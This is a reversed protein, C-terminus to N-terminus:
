TPVGTLQDDLCASVHQDRIREFSIAVGAELQQVTLEAAVGTLEEIAVAVEVVGLSDLHAIEIQDTAGLFPALRGRIQEADILGDTCNIQSYRAIHERFARQTVSWHHVDWSRGDWYVLNRFVAEDTFFRSLVRGDHEVYDALEVYIKDISDHVFLLGCFIALAEAVEAGGVTPEAPMIAVYTSAPPNYNYSTVLGVPRGTSKSEAIYQTRVGQWLAM